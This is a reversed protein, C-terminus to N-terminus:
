ARARDPSMPQSAFTLYELDAFTQELRHYAWGCAVLAAVAYGFGYVPPGIAVTALTCAANGALFVAAVEVAARRRDFYFLVITLFLTLAHLVAGVLAARFIGLQTLELSFARAIAPAMAILLLTIPAQVMVLRTLSDRLATGMAAKAALVQRLTGHKTVAGYYRRYHDYFETEVGVLFMAYAPVVSVYALFLPADYASAHFWSQLRYGAPSAWFIVRDVTIAAYYFLGAWALPRYRRFAAPLGSPGAAAPGPFERAVRAHLAFFVLAQGLLFGGLAGATRFRTGLVVAAVVGLLNGAFFAVVVSLYNQAAGVFVMAIWTCSVVVLLVPGLLRVALPLDPALGYFLAGLAAHGLATAGVSWQYSRVFAATESTYLCDALHRTVVNQYSGTTILSFTYTYVVVAQFLDHDGLVLLERTFLALAGLACISMLWPGSSVVAGYVHARLWGGYSDEALLRKLRFGIGAM